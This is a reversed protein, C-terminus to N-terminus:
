PGQDVVVRNRGASKAEYLAVDARAILSDGLNKLDGTDRAPRESAIGISATVDVSRDDDVAVGTAAVEERIRDALLVACKADTDPLLIVFEEGGYRAPVDTARIRSDIRQAVEQLVRDGAAHGHSDNIRKFHDVDLMMCALPAGDRRARALEEKIRVQLYRRNYWGTLVDTFGSRLLRARNVANELAFSAIVGLHAFFDSAHAPTFRNEDVSGFNMSGLLCGERRLPIIAVSRLRADRPLLLGHDAAGYPGLWPEELAAYHPTMGSLSDVLELGPPTKTSGGLLLHSVDHDPDWLVVSNADLRYSQALGGLMCDFLSALDEAQLLALEREQSRRLIRTNREVQDTLTELLGRTRELEAALDETDM